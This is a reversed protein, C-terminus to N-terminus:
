KGIPNLNADLTGVRNGRRDFMKWVGGNHASHTPDSGIDRTIFNKGDSFVDQGHSNFPARQPAIRQGYGLDSADARILENRYIVRNNAQRVAVSNPHYPSGKLAPSPTKNKFGRNPACMNHVLLGNSTIRFVHQGQVELNYVTQPTHQGATHQPQIGLVATPGALTALREGASLEGAAVFDGRDLSYVPHQATM